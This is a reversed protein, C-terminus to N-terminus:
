NGNFVEDLITNINDIEFYPIRILKINKEKCYVDKLKDRKQTEIFGDNGGFYGVTKYHQIGDFEIAIKQKPIYFDFRLNGIYILDDFTKEKNFIINEKRLYEIIKKEGSSCSELEIGFELRDLVAGRITAIETLTMDDEIIAKKFFSKLEEIEDNEFQKLNMTIDIVYYYPINYKNSIHKPTKKNIKYETVILENMLKLAIKSAEKTERLEKM